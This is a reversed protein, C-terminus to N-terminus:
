GNISELIIQRAGPYDDAEIWNIFVGEREMKRFWTMQRKAFNHIASNLKQFMQEYSLDGNLYRGIYRYELGFSDLKEFTVGSQVLNEVEEIMGSKLRNILRQTIRDKILERETKIGIVVYNVPPFDVSLGSEAEAILIARVIREKKSLDSKNHIDSKLSVLINQLEDLSLSRLEESRGSNFDAKKLRYNQLISSIYLGTGGVLFPLKGKSIIENFLHYFKNKFEFLNFEDDPDVIDILHYAAKSGNFTYDELDKGTGINMRRYVQRSDASLIEGNFEIALKVALRTKGSATPGLITILEAPM